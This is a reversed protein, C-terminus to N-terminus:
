GAKREKMLKAREALSLPQDVTREDPRSARGQARKTKAPTEPPPTADDRGTALLAGGEAARTIAGALADQSNLFHADDPTEPATQEVQAAPAPTKAKSGRSGKRAVGDGKGTPRAVKEAPGASARPQFAPTM